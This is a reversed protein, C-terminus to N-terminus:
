LSLRWLSRNFGGINNLHTLSTELQVNSGQYEHGVYQVHAYARYHVKPNRLIRPIQQSPTSIRLM